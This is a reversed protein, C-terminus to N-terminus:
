PRSSLTVPMTPVAHTMGPNLSRETSLKLRSAPSCRTRRSNRCRGSPSPPRALRDSLTATSGTSFLRSMIARARSSTSTKVKPQRGVYTPFDKYKARRSSRPSNSSLSPGRSTPVPAPVAGPGSSGVPGSNGASASGSPCVSTMASGGSRAAPQLGGGAVLAHVREDEAREGVEQPVLVPGLFPRTAAAAALGARAIARRM